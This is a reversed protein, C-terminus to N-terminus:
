VDPRGHPLRSGLASASSDRTRPAPRAACARTRRLKLLAPRYEPAHLNLTLTLTSALRGEAALWLPVRRRFPTTARRPLPTRLLRACHVAPPCTYKERCLASARRHGRSSSRSSSGVSWAALARAHTRRRRSQNHRPRQPTASAANRHLTFLARFWSSTMKLQRPCSLTRWGEVSLRRCRLCSPTSPHNM